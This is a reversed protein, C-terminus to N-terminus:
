KGTEKLAGIVKAAEDATLERTANIARGAVKSAFALWDARGNEDNEFGADQILKATIGNGAAAAPADPLPEIRHPKRKGRTETLSVTLPKDIHSLHSLRIGGVAVGGWKVSHDNFLTMRRGIYASADAGWATVLVRRMSKCPKYPREDGFEATVINVPQDADGRSVATITVTRPAILDDANIQDSKPAITDTMDLSM